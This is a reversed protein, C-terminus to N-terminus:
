DAALCPLYMGSCRECRESRGVLSLVHRPLLRQSRRKRHILTKVAQLMASQVLNGLHQLPRARRSAAERTSSGLGHRYLVLPRTRRHIYTINGVM